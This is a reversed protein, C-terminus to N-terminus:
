KLYLNNRLYHYLFIKIPAFMSNDHVVVDGLCALHLMVDDDAETVKGVPLKTNGCTLDFRLDFFINFSSWILLTSCKLVLFNRVNCSAM